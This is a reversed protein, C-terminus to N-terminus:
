YGPNQVLNPDTILEIYPIPYLMDNPSWPQKYPIAGLVTASQGTRNLDLWRHGWECFLEVQREHYISDLVDTSDMPGSYTSLGARTRILNMDEISGAIGSGAGHAQAEARILYQEGLRLMMYYQLVNGNAVEQGPGQTYKFPYYYYKGAYRTSDIWTLRRQDGSDFANLLQPAIYVLSPHTTNSRPVIAHGEPTINYTSGTSSNPKLQWIAESSNPLFVANLAALGYLGGNGIVTDAESVADPWDGLFLYVRALLAAAGYKNPVIREGLGVSYDRPLRSQADKLDSIILRYIDAVPSKPLLATKQYNTTTVLPAEGFVNVVYFYAFARVMEAEGTLENKVSDHVGTASILGSVIANSSYIIKYAEDWFASNFYSNSSLLKNDQFQINNTNTGWSIFEDASLGCYITTFGNSWSVQFIPGVNLLTSYVGAMASEALLDNSFIQASTVDNIPQDIALMKKCSEGSLFVITVVFLITMRCGMGINIAKRKM